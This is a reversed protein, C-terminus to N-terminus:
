ASQIKYVTGLYKYYVCRSGQTAHHLIVVQSIDLLEQLEKDTPASTVIKVSQLNDYIDRFLDVIKSTYAAFDKTAIPDNNFKVSHIDIDPIIM